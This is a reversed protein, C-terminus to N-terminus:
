EAAASRLQTARTFLWSRFDADFPLLHGQGELLHLEAKPLHAALHRGFAQPVFADLEGQVVQVPTTVAGMDYGWAQWQVKLDQVAGDAGQRLGEQQTRMFLCANAPSALHQQDSAPMEEKATRLYFDPRHLDARRVGWATLDFLLPHKEAMKSGPLGNDAMFQRADPFRSFDTYGAISFTFVVRQPYYYSTAIVPPGGSSWGILGFRSIGLADALAATDDAFDRLSYPALYPSRGIGPRDFSILRYGSHRADQDLLALELRSGPNGHAYFVPFGNPDGAEAVALQHGRLTLLQPAISPAEIGECVSAQPFNDEGPKDVSACAVLTLSLLCLVPRFHHFALRM